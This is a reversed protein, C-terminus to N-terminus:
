RSVEIVRYFGQGAVDVSSDNAFTTAGMATIPGGVPTWDPTELGPAWQLQYTHGAITKWWAAAGEDSLSLGVLRLPEPPGGKIITFSDDIAGTERLFKADLRNGDIDIVMSGTQLESVFMAPHYGTRVTAWGSSGAVAYVTGQGATLGTTPKLYAGTESPRGSGRDAIMSATLTTSRGYHGNLLYSREYNHSHGCLVLDVGYSELIPVANTRMEILEPERDSDHSGKTYPPHHWYAILWFNTNAALDNELWNLMASGPLRGAATMADLCVFHINGYDFSYYNPTGSALGGAEGHQPFSFNLFYPITPSPDPDQASDHNGITPWLVTSRLENTYVDFVARQYEDDQGSDYANDGLMLWIDTPRQGTFAEYANRVGVANGRGTSATGSDGIAWIRTPKPKSPFTFFSYHSGGALNTGSAGIAYFYKAGPLLNTLTVIHETTAAQDTVSSVLVGPATRYRVISNTPVSTRWRVVISTQTGIQLYPGRTLLVPRLPPPQKEAILEMAFGMDPSGPDSLHVEVAMLNYGEVLGAPDLSYPLFGTEEMGGLGPSNALTGYYIPGDPMASRVVEVGNLYVVAGDDRQLRATLNTVSDADTLYFGQRFYTTINKNNPDTGYGAETAEDGTGYGLTAPGAGWFGDDYFFPDIWDSAQDTGDDLYKWASNTAILVTPQAEAQIGCFFGGWAAFGALCSAAKLRGFRNRLFDMFEIKGASKYGYIYHCGM